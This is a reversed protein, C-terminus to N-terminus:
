RISRRLKDAIQRAIKMNGEDNYPNFLTVSRLWKLEHQTLEVSVTDTKHKARYLPCGSCDSPLVDTGSAQEQRLREAKSKEDGFVAPDISGTVIPWGSLLTDRETKSLMELISMRDIDVQVLVDCPPFEDRWHALKPSIEWMQLNGWNDFDLRALPYSGTDEHPEARIVQINADLRSLLIKTM